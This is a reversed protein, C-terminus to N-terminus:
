KQFGPDCRQTNQTGRRAGSRQDANQGAFGKAHRHEGNAGTCHCPETVPSLRYHCVFLVGYRERDESRDETDNLQAPAELMWPEAGNTVRAVETVRADSGLKRATMAKALSQLGHADIAPKSAVRTPGGLNRSIVVIAPYAIVDSTFADTGVMDVFHLLHFNEAVYRRLPGGYRNKLWRDACIFGLTGGPALLSLSQEIFPIYIDARDYITRYRRRYEAMLVDPIMEQRVYPPNGIVHTFERDHSLLLFDGQKLWRDCLARGKAASVGKDQLARLVLEGTRNYSSRHLEVAVISQGLDDVINGRGGVERTYAELLRDIVPTLFDGQGMSPELLRARHLPKDATYGALDLIFDVVERRTFVAGREEVGAAAMGEVAATLHPLEFLTPQYAFTAKVPSEM